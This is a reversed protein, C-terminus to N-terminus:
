LAYISTSDIRYRTPTISILKTKPNSTQYLSLVEDMEIRRPDDAPYGDFGALLIKKAKGSTAIALAYSIVLSNPLIGYNSGFKFKGPVVQLGFDLLKNSALYTKIEKSLRKLPLALPQKLLRYRKRDTLLRFASCTARINILKENISKQTNLGIVFPKKKIIYQELLAQHKLVGPGTGLIIVEKNSIKKKPVWSGTCKGSYMKKDIDLLNKNFKKGGVSRLHDIVSLVDIPGFRLDNLMGQIFTPHIGYKGALFYFPNTGWNYKDQLPKFEDAILELLPLLNVKRNILDKYQIVLYETKANGPGRGMGTVTSDIWTVGNEVAKQTNVVARSMNDHTHIGLSGAWNKRLLSIIELIRSTDLSGMSDAFYLIDIPYQSSIKGINEIEENTRDAIQMLNFAVKYGAKKLWTSVKIAKELEPYHCAIRVLKVRSKKQGKFLLKINKIPNKNKYNILESANVMVAVKLNAPISLSNIFNDQTYACPGKYTNKEFSRFGIEVFEVGSSSMSKLYKSILNKSFDWNNYYGGDRLTCDLIKINNQSKIM